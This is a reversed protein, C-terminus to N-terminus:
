SHHTVLIPYWELIWIAYKGDVNEFSDYLKVINPHSLKKLTEMEKLQESNGYNPTSMPTIKAAYVKNTQMDEALKIM